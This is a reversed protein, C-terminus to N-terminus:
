NKKDFVQKACIQITTGRSRIVLITYFFAIRFKAQILKTNIFLNLSLACDM